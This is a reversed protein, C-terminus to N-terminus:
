RHSNASSVACANRVAASHIAPVEGIAAIRFRGLPRRQRSGIRDSSGAPYANVKGSLPEIHPGHATQPESGYSIGGSDRGTANFPTEREGLASLRLVALEAFTYAPNAVPLAAVLNACEFRPLFRGGVPPHVEGRKSCM